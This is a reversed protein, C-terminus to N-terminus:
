SLRVFLADSLLVKKCAGAEGGATVGPSASPHRRTTSRLRFHIPRAALASRADAAQRDCLQARHFHRLEFRQAARVLECHAAFLRVQDLPECALATLCLWLLLAKACAAVIM